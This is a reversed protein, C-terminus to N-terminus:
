IAAYYSGISFKSSSTASHNKVSESNLYKIYAEHSIVRFDFSVRTLGTDNVQNGHNCKNGDWIVLENAKMEFPKYDGKGPSSERWVSNNGNMNTIALIINLEGLPHRHNEDSDCHWRKVAQAGPVHIRINPLAQIIIGKDKMFMPKIEDLCFKDWNTRLESDPKKIEEYFIKHFKSHSDRGLDAKIFVELNEKLHLTELQTVKFKSALIRGFPYKNPDIEKFTESM